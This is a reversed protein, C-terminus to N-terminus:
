AALACAPLRVDPQPSEIWFYVGVSRWRDFFAAALEYSDDAM